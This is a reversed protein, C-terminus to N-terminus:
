RIEMGELANTILSDSGITDLLVLGEVTAFALAALPRRDEEREVKLASLVWDFFDDCIQRAITRHYEEGGAASAALELWLRLYPRIHQDKIMGALHPVLLRYPLQESQASGLILKLRDSVLLLTATMLEEKDSFYHLLMRDSMGVAAALPRLSAGKMGHILLYDALQEIIAQKKSDTKKM